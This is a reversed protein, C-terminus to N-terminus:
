GKGKELDLGKIIEGLKKIGKEMSEPDSSNVNIIQEKPIDKLLEKIPNRGALTEAEFVAQEKAIMTELEEDSQREYAIRKRKIAETIWEEYSHKKIWALHSIVAHHQGGTIDTLDGTIAKDLEKARESEATCVGMIGRYSKYDKFSFEPHETLYKLGNSLMIQCTAEYGGGFGSIDITKM